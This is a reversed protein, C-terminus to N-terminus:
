RSLGSCSRCSSRQETRVSSSTATPEVATGNWMTPVPKKAPAVTVNALVRSTTGSTGGRHGRDRRVADKSRDGNRRAGRNTPSIAVTVFALPPAVVKASRNLTVAAGVIAVGVTPWM